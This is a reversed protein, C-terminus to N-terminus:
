EPPYMPIRLIIPARQIGTREWCNIVAEPTIEDWAQTALHMAESIDIKYIEREGADDLKIARSCLACRYHAKFARIIGADLPQIHSTMNPEFYHITINSPKYDTKHGSFNNVLLVINRNQDHMKADFHCIYRSYDLILKIM